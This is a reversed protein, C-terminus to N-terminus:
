KRLFLNDAIKKLTLILFSISILIQFIKDKIKAPIRDLTDLHKLVYLWKDFKTKLEDLTKNFKPM